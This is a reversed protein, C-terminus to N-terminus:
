SGNPQPTSVMRELSQAYPPSAVGHETIIGAILKADTVDFAPNRVKVGTPAMPEKFWMTTVESVPREEIPIDAGTKCARDITSTPGCIYFPVGHYAANVAVSLTGIKNATDGNAAIRDCGTFVIDILGEAMLSSAMNDCILTTDMGAHFLEFATLRSGQLLPRTEDCYIKLGYGGTHALYLASTATGYKSTALQGANCHTLVGMGPKLLRLAHEGIRLCANTDERHIRLCEEKLARVMEPVSRDKNRDMAERMRDLAWTLNVATPRASALRAAAEDFAKEFLAYTDAGLPKLTLYLGYAAAVGIAPAGRVKLLYIADWVEGLTRLSIYKREGPLLTQDLIILADADDDLELTILENTKEM